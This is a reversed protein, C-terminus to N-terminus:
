DDLAGEYVEADDFRGELIAICIDFANLEGDQRHQAASFSRHRPAARRSRIERIRRLATRAEVTGM